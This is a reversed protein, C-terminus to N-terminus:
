KAAASCAAILEDPNTVSLVLTSVTVSRRWMKAQASPEIKLEVLGKGSGNVLWRSGVFHVGAAFVRRDFPQASKISTWPIDATFAWGMKVHLNGAEIRLESTAPSLGLPRSLALFWRDFRLETQVIWLSRRRRRDLPAFKWPRQGTIWSM